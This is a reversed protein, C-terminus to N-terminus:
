EPQWEAAPQVIGYVFALGLETLRLPKVGEEFLVICRGSGDWHAGYQEYLYYRVIRPDAEFADRMAVLRAPLCAGFESIFFKPDYVGREALWAELADYPALPNGHALYTHIDWAAMQPPGGTLREVEDWWAGLWTFGHQYDVHSIGPGVLRAYPLRQRVHVYLEAARRPDASCQGYRGHYALDPENLFLLWDDFEAPLMELWPLQPLLAGGSYVPHFFFDCWLAQTPELGWLPQAPSSRAWGRWYHVQDGLLAVREAGDTHSSFAIGAKPPSRGDMVLPLFMQFVAASALILVNM